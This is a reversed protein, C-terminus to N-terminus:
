PAQALSRGPRDDEVDLVRDVRALSLMRRVRDTAGRVRLAVEGAPSERPVPGGAAVTVLTDDIRPPVVM